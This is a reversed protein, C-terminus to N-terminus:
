NPVEPPGAEPDHVSQTQSEPLQLRTDGLTVGVLVGLLVGVGLKVGTDGDLVGLMVIVGLTM